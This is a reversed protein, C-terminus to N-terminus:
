ALFDEHNIYQGGKGLITQLEGVDIESLSRKNKIALSAAIGAAEGTLVVPPFVRTVDWTDGDSAIIRGAAIINKIKRDILTRYPIEYIPGIKRWDGICGISDDFPRFVDEPKLEYQGVIRRTMRMQPIAPMSLMTYDLRQNKKLFELAVRHADKLFNNVDEAKTGYYKKPSATLESNKIEPNYGLIRWHVATNIQNINIALEM